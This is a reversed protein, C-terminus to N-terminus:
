VETSLREIDNFIIQHILDPPNLLIAFIIGKDNLLYFLGMYRQIRAQLDVLCM